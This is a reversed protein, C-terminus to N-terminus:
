TIIPVISSLIIYMSNVFAFHNNYYELYKGGDNKLDTNIARVCLPLTM